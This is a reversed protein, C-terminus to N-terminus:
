DVRFAVLRNADHHESAFTIREARAIIQDFKGGRCAICLARPVRDCEQMRQRVRRLGIHSGRVAVGNADTRRQQQM